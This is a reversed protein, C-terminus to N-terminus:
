GAIELVFGAITESEGKNEEFDSEDELDIVKYFDKLVTKGEFVFNKEDLKSYVLDEDDFEDSIDGVIEEIIDELTVVGSTGGYEDVVIELHIKLDKFEKLIGDHKKSEPVIYADRKLSIWDFDKKDLYPLLDKVYLVGIVTDMNEKYLPIR